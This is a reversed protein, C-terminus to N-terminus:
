GAAQRLANLPSVSSKAGPKAGGPKAGAARAKPTAGLADLAGLLKPGLDAMTAHAGVRAALKKVQEATDPDYPIRQAASAIAAAQDITRAYGVALRALAEDEPALELSKLTAEVAPLMKREDESTDAAKRQRSAVCVVERPM